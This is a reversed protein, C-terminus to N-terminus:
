KLDKAVGAVLINAFAQSVLSEAFDLRMHWSETSYMVGLSWRGYPNIGNKIRANTDADNILSRDGGVSANVDMMGVAAEFPFSISKTERATYGVGGLLGIGTMSVPLTETVRDTYHTLEGQMGIYTARGILQLGGWKRWQAYASMETAPSGDGVQVTAYGVSAGVTMKAPERYVRYAAVGNADSKTDTDLLALKYHKKIEGHKKEILVARREGKMAKVEGSAVLEGDDNFIGVQDGISLDTSDAVCHTQAKDCQLAKAAAPAAVSLLTTATFIMSIRM